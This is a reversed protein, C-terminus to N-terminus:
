QDLAIIPTDRRFGYAVGTEYRPDVLLQAVNEGVQKPSLPEGYRSVLHHEITTGDRAAYAAAM